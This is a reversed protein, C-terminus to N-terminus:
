GWGSIWGDLGIWNMLMVTSCGDIFWFSQHSTLKWYGKFRWFKRSADPCIQLGYGMRQRLSSLIQLIWLQLLRQWHWCKVNELKWPWGLHACETEQWLILAFTSLELRWGECVNSIHLLSMPSHNTVVKTQGINIIIVVSFAPSNKHYWWRVVQEWRALWVGELWVHWWLGCHLQFWWDPTLTWLHSALPHSYHLSPPSAPIHSSVTINSFAFKGRCASARPGRCAGRLRVSLYCKLFSFNAPRSLPTALFILCVTCMLQSCITLRFDWRRKHHCQTMFLGFCLKIFFFHVCM